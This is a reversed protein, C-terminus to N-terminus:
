ANEIDPFQYLYNWEQEIEGTFACIIGIKGGFEVSFNYDANNKDSKL